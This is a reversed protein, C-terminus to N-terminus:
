FSDDRYKQKYNKIHFWVTAFIFMVGIGGFIEIINEFEM